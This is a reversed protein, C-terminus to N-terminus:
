DNRIDGLDNRVGGFDSRVGGLDNRVGGLITETMCKTKINHALHKEYVSAQPTHITVGSSIQNRVTSHKPVLHLTVDRIRVNNYTCISDRVLSCLTLGSSCADGNESLTRNMQERSFDRHHTCRTVFRCAASEDNEDEIRVADDMMSRDVACDTRKVLRRNMVVDEHGWGWFHTPYGGSARYDALNVSWVGGLIPLAPARRADGGARRPKGQQSRVIRRAVRAFNGFVNKPWFYEKPM